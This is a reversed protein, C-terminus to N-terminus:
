QIFQTLANVQLYLPLAEGIDYFTQAEGRVDLSPFLALASRGAVLPRRRIGSKGLVVEAFECLHVLGCPFANTWSMPSSPRQIAFQIARFRM